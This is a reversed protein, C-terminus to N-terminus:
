FRNEADGSRERHQLTNEKSLQIQRLAAEAATRAFREKDNTAVKQLAPIAEAAAPGFRGLAKASNFRVAADPDNLVREVLAPVVNSPSRAVAGLTEATISRLTPSNDRLCSILNPVAADFSPEESFRSIAQVASARVDFSQNTLAQVLPPFGDPGVSALAFAAEFPNPGTHLEKVITPLIPRAHSGLVRFAIRLRARRQDLSLEGTVLDEEKLRLEAVLFPLANSGIQHLANTAREYVDPRAAAPERMLDNLWSEIPRGEFAPQEASYCHSALFLATVVTRIQRRMVYVSEIGTVSKCGPALGCNRSHDLCLTIPWKEMRWGM